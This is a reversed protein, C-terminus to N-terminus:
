EIVENIYPISPSAGKRTVSIAAARNAVKLAKTIGTNLHSIFYGTFTDGAGTTDIADVVEGVESYINGDKYICSVGKEGMTLVVLMYPYKEHLGKLIETPSDYGSIQKGEEENVLLIDVKNLDVDNIIKNYPSPNLAVVLGSEYAKDIIYSLNSIENQLVILDGKGFNSLVNEIDEIGIEHNSGPAIIISNSGNADVQIIAHGSDNNSRKIYDININDKILENILVQGDKGICGAFYTECGSRALAIAQNFGKGGTFTDQKFSSITEGKRVINDVNYVKDINASGFVLYRM